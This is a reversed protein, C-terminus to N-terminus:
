SGGAKEIAARIASALDDGSEGALMKEGAPDACDELLTVQVEGEGVVASSEVMRWDKARLWKELMELAEARPALDALLAANDNREETVRALAARLPGVCTCHKATVDGCRELAAEKASDRWDNVEDTLVENEAQLARIKADAARVVGKAYERTCCPEGDRPPMGCIPCSM